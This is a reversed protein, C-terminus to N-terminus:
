RFSGYEFPPRQDQREDTEQFNKEYTTSCSCSIGLLFLVTFTKLNM